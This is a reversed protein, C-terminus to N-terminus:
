KELFALVREDLPRTPGTGAFVLFPVDETTIELPGHFFEGGNICGSHIWQMEMLICISEMYASGWMPGAGITYIVPEDKCAECFEAADPLCKLRANEVIADYKEFAAIFDDYKAWDETQKLLEGCFRLGLCEKKLSFVQNPGWSYVLLHDVVTAIETEPNFCYGVVTAGRAHATRASELTERTNGGHSCIVVLSNEDLCEPTDHVFENATYWGVRRLLRSERELFYKSIHFAAISGGCASFFVKDIKKEALIASVTQKIDM